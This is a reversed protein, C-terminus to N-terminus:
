LHNSYCSVKFPFIETHFMSPDAMRTIISSSFPNVPFPEGRNRFLWPIDDQDMSRALAWRHASRFYYLVIDLCWQSPGVYSPYKGTYSAKSALFGVGHETGRIILRWPPQIKGARRIRPFIEAAESRGPGLKFCRNATM